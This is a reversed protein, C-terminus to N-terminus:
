ESVANNILNLLAKETVSVRENIGFATSLFNM